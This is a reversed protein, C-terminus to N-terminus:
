HETKGHGMQGDHDHGQDPGTLGADRCSRRRKEVGVSASVSGHRHGRELQHEHELRECVGAMISSVLGSM